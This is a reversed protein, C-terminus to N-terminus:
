STPSLVPGLGQCSFTGPSCDSHIVATYVLSGGLCRPGCGGNGTRQTCTWQCVWERLDQPPSHGM